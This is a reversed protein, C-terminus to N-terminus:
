LYGLPNVRYGGRWPYGLWVDFHLHPGTAWGTAGVRGVPQGAGVSAGTSVSLSSMHNYTTITDSGHSIWVQWGGGNDKWGAFVVKGSGAAVVRTGYPAQIDIAQHGGHYGQSLTGGPVPWVMAGSFRCNGCGAASGGSNARPTAAAVKPKATVVPTPEPTPTPTPTPEPSATFVPAPRGDPVVLQQGITVVGGPLGNYRVIDDPDAMYRDAISTLSEGEAVVHLVGDSAPIVLEQGVELRDEPEMRNAWWITMVSIGFRSAIATLTDGERVTYRRVDPAAVGLPTPAPGIPRLLTGDSALPGAFAAADGHSPAAEARRSASTATRVSGVANTDLLAGLRAIPQADAAVSNGTAPAPPLTALATALALLALVLAPAVRRDGALDHLRARAAPLRAAIAPSSAAANERQLALQARRRSIPGRPPTVASAAHRSSAPQLDGGARAFARRLPVAAHLLVAEQIPASPV